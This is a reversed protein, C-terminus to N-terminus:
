KIAKSKFASFDIKLETVDDVLTKLSAKIENLITALHDDKIKSFKDYDEFRQNMKADNLQSEVLKKNMAKQDDYRLKFMLVVLSALLGIAAKSILDGISISSEALFLVLLYIM